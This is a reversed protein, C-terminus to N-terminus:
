ARWFIVAISAVLGGCGAALIAIGYLRTQRFITLLTGAGAAALGAYLSLLWIGIAAMGAAHGRDDVSFNVAASITAGMAACTLWYTPPPWEDRPSTPDM